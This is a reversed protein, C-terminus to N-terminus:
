DGEAVWALGKWAWCFAKKTRPKRGYFPRSSGACRRSGNCRRGANRHGMEMIASTSRGAVVFFGHTGAEQRPDRSGPRSPGALVSAM